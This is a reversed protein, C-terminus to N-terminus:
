AGQETDEQQGPGAKIKKQTEDTMEKVKIIDLYLPDVEKFVQIYRRALKLDGETCLDYAANDCADPDSQLDCYSCPYEEDGTGMKVTTLKYHKGKRKITVEEM